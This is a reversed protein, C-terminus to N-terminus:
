PAPPIIVDVPSSFDSCMDDLCTKVWYYYRTGAVLGSDAYSLDTDDDDADLKSAASSDDATHRWVEYRTATSVVLWNLTLSTDLVASVTPAAPAVLVATTTVSVATGPSSCNNADCSLVWYYYTTNPSVPDSYTLQTIDSGAGVETATAADGTTNRFVEYRTAATTTTWALTVTDGDDNGMATLDATLAPATTVTLVDSFSTSCGTGNCAKIWYYYATAATLGTDDYTIAAINTGGSIKTAMSSDDATHRYVEYDDAAVTVTWNLTLTTDKVTGTAVDPLAPTGPVATPTAMTTANASLSFGSCTSDICAQVFYHYQTDATLGLDVFKLDTDIADTALKVAAASDSTASRYVDYRTATSVMAWSLSISVHSLTMATPMTPASPTMITATTASVPQSFGSCDSGICAKVWYFYETAPTLGTDVFATDTDISDTLKIVEPATNADMTHRFVDYRTARAVATWSLSISSHSDAMATPVAPNAPAVSLTTANASAGFITCTTANCNQLWYYYRTSATLGTDTFTLSAIPTNGSLRTAAGPNDTTHRWVQYTTNGPAADWSLTIQSRSNVVLTPRMAASLRTTLTGPLSFDSCLDGLCAKVWYFYETNARVGVDLYSLTADNDVDIIKSAATSDSATYRFVEYRTADEVALWNVFPSASPMQSVTPAAPADPAVVTTTVSVATVPSSCNNADCSLVWYHYTTNPSTTDIYTLLAIDSGGGVETATAADGTTNRFVEYRIAATAATWALTVTTGASNAMATLGAAPAPATIVTLSASFSTSCGITNCAKIWYHYTTAATLGTDDYTTAAINTGGSIKTAM